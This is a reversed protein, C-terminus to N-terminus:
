QLVAVRESHVTKGSMFDVAAALLMTTDTDCEMRLSQAISELHDVQNTLQALSERWWVRIEAGLKNAMCLLEREDAVLSEISTACSAIEALSCRSFDREVLDDILGSQKGVLGAFRGRLSITKRMINWVTRKGAHQSQSCVVVRKTEQKARSVVPALQSFPLPFTTTTM